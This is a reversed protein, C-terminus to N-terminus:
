GKQLTSGRSRIWCVVHVGCYLRVSIDALIVSSYSIVDDIEKQHKLKLPYIETQSQPFKAYNVQNGCIHWKHHLVIWCVIVTM